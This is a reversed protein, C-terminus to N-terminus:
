IVHVGFWGDIRAAVSYAPHSPQFSIWGNRVEAPNGIITITKMLSGV